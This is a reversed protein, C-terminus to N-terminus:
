VVHTRCLSLLKKRGPELNEGREWDYADMAIETTIAGPKTSLRRLMDEVDKPFPHKGHALMDTIPHHGLNVKDM